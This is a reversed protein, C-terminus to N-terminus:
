LLKRTRHSLTERCTFSDGVRQAKFIKSLIVFSLRQRCNILRPSLPGRAKLLVACVSPKLESIYLPLWFTEFSFEQPGTPILDRCTIPNSSLFSKWQSPRVHLIKVDLNNIARVSFSELCVSVCICM